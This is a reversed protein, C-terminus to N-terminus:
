SAFSFLAFFFALFNSACAAVAAGFLAFAALFSSSSTDEQVLSSLLAVAVIASRKLFKFSSILSQYLCKRPYFNVGSFFDFVIFFGKVFEKIYLINSYDCSHTPTYRLKTACTTQSWPAPLELRKVGVLYQEHAM